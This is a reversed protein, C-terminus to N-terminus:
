LQAAEAPAVSLWHILRPVLPYFLGLRIPLLGDPLARRLAAYAELQARYKAIEATEFDADSHSGQETTKFDVIWICGEGALLPEDGAVFTRDVRLSRADPSAMTLTRESAASDHPSLIWRGVPDGLTLALARGARTAERAALAPALGEGRLSAVLRSEWAPLEAILDDCSAGRDLRMAIVQLYRHVVNGFARVAFSGEPREFAAMHRLASAAPYALRHEKAAQFRAAPDFDLPLRQIMPPMGVAANVEVGEGSAALAFEEYEMANPEHRAGVLPEEMPSPEALLTEIREMAAPWCARLLSDHRPQAIQGETNIAVAGFLHVEERARTTAVYFVRKREAAERKSRIGSLWGSLKDSDTGKQWIPALVVSASTDGDLAGDFELWNLLVSATRGGGRELGPVLVVDWELGKAKHITMLEVGLGGNEMAGSMPEAYLRNLRATLVNLDVRDGDGEVERLVRLYRQVNNRQEESLAADGGLSRWTREVHTALSTRGLTAVATELVPWARNLLQRGRESLFGRRGRVFQEVTAGADADDGEGTLALLDALGLGCWPAHLVALWAIRDAPHLLTRTLALADLVEPLEDLVDLDIARYPLPGDGYDRKFEAIVASLHSRARGLVAIRWPKRRSPQDRDEPLPMALRQEIIRRIARAEQEAHNSHSREDSLAAAHWVIGADSTKERVASAAVFPVDVGEAGLLRADDPRPFLLEFAHNFDKVM